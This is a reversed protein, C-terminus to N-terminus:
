SQHRHRRRRRNCGGGGDELREQCDLQGAVAVDLADTDEHEAAVVVLAFCYTVCRECAAPNVVAGAAGSYCSSRHSACESAFATLQSHVDAPPKGDLLSGDPVPAGAPAAATTAVVAAAVAVAALSALTCRRIAMIRFLPPLPRPPCRAVTLVPLPSPPSAADPSATHRFLIPHPPTGAAVTTSAAEFKLEEASEPPQGSTRGHPRGLPYVCWRSREWALM